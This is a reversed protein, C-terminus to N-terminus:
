QRPLPRPPPGLHQSMGVHPLWRAPLLHTSVDHLGSSFVHMSMCKVPCGHAKCITERRACHVLTPKPHSRHKYPHAGQGLCQQQYNLLKQLDTATTASSSRASECPGTSTSTCTVGGDGGFRGDDDADAALPEFGM